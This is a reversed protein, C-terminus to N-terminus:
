YIVNPRQTVIDIYLKIKSNPFRGAFESEFESFLSSRKLLNNTIIYYYSILDLNNESAPEKAVMEKIGQLTGDNILYDEDLNSHLSKYQLYLIFMEQEYVTGKYEAIVSEFKKEINKDLAPIYKISLKELEQLDKFANGEPPVVSFTLENSHMVIGSAGAYSFKVTYNGPAFYKRGESSDVSAFRYNINLQIMCIKEEFPNFVTYPIKLYEYVVSLDNPYQNNFNKLVVNKYLEPKIFYPISDKKSSVNKIKITLWISEGELYNNKQLDVRAQFKPLLYPTEDNTVNETKDDNLFTKFSFFCVSIFLLIVFSKIKMNHYNSILILILAVSYKGSLM